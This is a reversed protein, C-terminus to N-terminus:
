NLEELSENEAPKLSSCESQAELQKDLFKQFLKLSERETYEEIFDGDVYFYM